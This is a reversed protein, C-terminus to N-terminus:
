FGSENKYNFYFKTQNLQYKYAEDVRFNIDTFSLKRDIEKNNKNYRAHQNAVLSHGFRFAATAFENSLQANVKNFKNNKL